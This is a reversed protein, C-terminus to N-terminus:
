NRMIYVARRQEYINAFVPVALADQTIKVQERMLDLTRSLAQGVM